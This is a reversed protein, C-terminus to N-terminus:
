GEAQLSRTEAEERCPHLKGNNFPLYAWKRLTGVDEGLNSSFRANLIFLLGCSFQDRVKRKKNLPFSGIKLNKFLGKQLSSPREAPLAGVAAFRNSVAM